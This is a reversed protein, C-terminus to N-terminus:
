CHLQCLQSQLRRFFSANNPYFQRQQICQGAARRLTELTWCRGGEFFGGTQGWDMGM